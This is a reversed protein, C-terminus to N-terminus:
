GFFRLWLGAVVLWPATLIMMLTAFCAARDAEYRAITGYGTGMSLEMARGRALLGTMMLCTTLTALSVLPETMRM